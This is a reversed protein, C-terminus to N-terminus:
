ARFRRFVSCFTHMSPNIHPLCAGAISLPSINRLGSRPLTQNQDLVKVTVPGVSRQTLPARAAKPRLVKPVREATSPRAEM